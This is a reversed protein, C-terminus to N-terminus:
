GLQRKARGGECEDRVIRKLVELKEWDTEDQPKQLLDKVTQPLNFSEFKRRLDGRAIGVYAVNKDRRQRPKKASSEAPEGEVRHRERHQRLHMDDYHKELELRVEDMLVQLGLRVVDDWGQPKRTSKFYTFEDPDIFPDRANSSQPETAAMEEWPEDESESDHSAQTPGTPKSAASRRASRECLLLQREFRNEAANVMEEYWKAPTAKFMQEWIVWWQTSEFAEGADCLREVVRRKDDSSLPALSADADLGGDQLRQRLLASAKCARRCKDITPRRLEDFNPGDADKPTIILIRLDFSL